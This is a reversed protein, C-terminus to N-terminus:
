IVITEKSLISRQGFIKSKLVWRGGDRFNWLRVSILVQNDIETGQLVLIKPGVIISQQRTWRHFIALNQFPATFRKSNCVFLSTDIKMLDEKKCIKLSNLRNKLIGRNKQLKSFVDRKKCNQFNKFRNEFFLYISRYISTSIKLYRIQLHNFRRICSM